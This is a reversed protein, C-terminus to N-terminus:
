KIRVHCKKIRIAFISRLEKVQTRTYIKTCIHSNHNRLNVNEEHFNETVQHIFSIIACQKRKNLVPPFFILMKSQTQLKNLGQVACYGLLILFLSCSMKWVSPGFPGKRLQAAAWYGPYPLPAPHSTCVHLLLSRKGNGCLALVQRNFELGAGQTDDM